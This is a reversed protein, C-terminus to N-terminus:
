VAIDTTWYGSIDDKKHYIWKNYYDAFYPVSTLSSSQKNIYQLVTLADNSNITTYDDVQACWTEIIDLSVIEASAKLILNADEETIDGDGNVDGKM